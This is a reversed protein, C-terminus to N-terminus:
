RLVVRGKPCDITAILAPAPGSVVPLDIGLKQLMLRVRTADLHEARLAILSAGRAASESPHPSLGWDIFLPVIGDAVLVLPDTFRWSFRLATLGVGVEPDSRELRCGLVFQRV